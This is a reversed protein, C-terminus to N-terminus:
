EDDGEQVYKWSYGGTTKRGYEGKCIAAIIRPNFGTKRGAERISNYKVNTEVCVVPKRKPSNMMNKFNQEKTPIIGKHSDSIKKLHSESFNIGKRSKSLKKRSEESMTGRCQGGNAVNYGYDRQNSKLLAILTIEKEEAEEKTLDDYIISHYINEWGYKKIANYVYPQGSYGAGYHWRKEPKQQTIGVYHKGNPFTHIYVKYM